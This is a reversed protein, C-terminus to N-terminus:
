FRLWFQDLQYFIFWKTLYIKGQRYIIYVIRDLDLM